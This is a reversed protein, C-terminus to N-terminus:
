VSAAAAAEVAATVQQHAHYSSRVLPGSEVHSFGLADGYEKLEAFEEPHWFRECRIHKLSPRLYQGITVLTVGQEKLDRLVQKVEEMSEGLGVM